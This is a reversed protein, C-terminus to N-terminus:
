YKLKICTRPIESYLKKAEVEWIQNDDHYILGSMVDFFLKQANDIDIKKTHKIRNELMLVRNRKTTSKVIPMYFVIDVEIASHIIDGKFQQSIINCISKKMKAAPDYVRTFGGCRSFRPRPQGKPDGPVTITIEPM